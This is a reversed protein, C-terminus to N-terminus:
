FNKRQENDIEEKLIELINFLDNIAINFNSRVEDILLSLNKDSM